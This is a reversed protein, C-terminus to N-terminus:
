STEGEERSMLDSTDIRVLQPARDMFLQLGPAFLSVLSVALVIANIRKNAGWGPSTKRRTVDM